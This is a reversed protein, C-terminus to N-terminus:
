KKSQRSFLDDIHLRWDSDSFYRVSAQHPSLQLRISYQCLHAMQQQLVNNQQPNLYFGQQSFSWLWHQDKSILSFHPVRGGQSNTVKNPLGLKYLATHRMLLSLKIDSFQDVFLWPQQQQHHQHPLFQAQTAPAVICYRGPKVAKDAAAAAVQPGGRIGIDCSM